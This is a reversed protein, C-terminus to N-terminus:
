PIQGLTKNDTVRSIRVRVRDKEAAPCRPVSVEIYNTTLVRAELGKKKIVVADCPKGITRKRFVLNKDRSLRRLRAARETKTRDSVQPWEAAATGPRPSYPFVHFYTLPSQELFHYMKDFDRESEGPFGVLIDAGLSAFPRRERLHTLIKDYDSCKVKRGMRRLVAESAHQLSFHFHPCIKEGSSLFELLSKGTFRPDLSSLRIQSLEDVGELRQLLDLLTKQPNLDRGYLCIHIGTLVVEEYGSDICSKVQGVIEDPKTSVCHGRVQPIICFSCSLDCGDQIKVLARSRYPKLSEETTKEVCGLIKEPLEDKSANPLVWWVQPFSKLEEAAKEAFCGTVAFRAQPNLRSAKKLFNRVDRDARSTLTCTNVLVIDSKFNNKEYRLGHKQFKEAWLFAEAQNVRCGFSQISFSTM